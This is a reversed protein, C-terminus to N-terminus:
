GCSTPCRRTRFIWRSRRDASRTGRAHSPGASRLLPASAAAPAAEKGSAQPAPEPSAAAAVRAESEVKPPAVAAPALPPAASESPQVARTLRVTVGKDQPLVTYSVAKKLDLVVRVKLPDRHQGIRAQTVLTNTEAKVVSPTVASRTEPLDIVLRGEGLTFVNPSALVGDATINVDVFTKQPVVSVATIQSATAPPAPVSPEAVEVQPEAPAVEQAVPPAVLMAASPAKAFDVALITGADNRVIQYDAARSLMITLRGIRQDEGAQQPVLDTVPDV